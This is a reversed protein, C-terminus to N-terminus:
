QIGFASPAYGQRRPNEFSVLTAQLGRVVVVGSCEFREDARNLTKGIVWPMAAYSHSAISAELNKAHITCTHPSAQDGYIM